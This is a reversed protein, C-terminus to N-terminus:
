LLSPIGSSIALPHNWEQLAACLDRHTSRVNQSLQDLLTNLQPVQTKRFHTERDVPRTKRNRYVSIWNDPPEKNGVFRPLAHLIVRFGQNQTQDNFLDCLVAGKQASPGMICTYVPFGADYSEPGWKPCELSQRYLASLTYAAAMDPSEFPPGRYRLEVSKIERAQQELQSLPRLTGSTLVFYTNNRLYSISKVM